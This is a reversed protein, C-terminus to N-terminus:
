ATLDVASAATSMVSGAFCILRGPIPRASAAAPEIATCLLQGIVGANHRNADHINGVLQKPHNFPLCVWQKADLELMPDYNKMKNPRM